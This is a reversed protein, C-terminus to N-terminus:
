NSAKNKLECIEFKQFFLLDRIFRLAVKPVVAKTVSRMSRFIPLFQLRPKVIETPEDIWLEM